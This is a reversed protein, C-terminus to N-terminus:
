ASAMVGKPVLPATPGISRDDRYGALLPVLADRGRSLRSKVTGGAVGEIEAIETVSFGGIYYMVLSRRQPEPLQRLAAVLDASAGDPGPTPPPPGHKRLAGAAIRARRWRSVAVRYAVRCVWARPEEYDGVAQWRAWARVFAEQTAEQAETLNGTYAYLQAVVGRYQARYFEAFAAEDAM